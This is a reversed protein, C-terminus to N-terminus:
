NLLSYIVINTGMKLAMNRIDEPNNHVERDEWGDGLDSEYTYLALLRGNDFIGFAQPRNNDHKHVKPLGDPFKFLINFLDHNPPIEVWDKDPFVKEMERKFYKDMGYNDDAHLFAGALLHERLDSAENDSFKINGHGTLYLFDSRNFIDDGIRARREIKNVKINTNSGIFSLLNPLSSPDSYWDGGGDYQIRTISFGMPGKIQDDRAILFVLLLCVFILDYKKM